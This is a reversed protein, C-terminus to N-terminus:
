ICGKKTSPEGSTAKLSRQPQGRYITVSLEAYAHICSGATGEADARGSFLAALCRGFAWAEDRPGTCAATPDNRSTDGLAREAWNEASQTERAAATLSSAM